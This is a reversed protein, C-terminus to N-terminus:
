SPKDRALPDATRQGACARRAGRNQPFRRQLRDSGGRRGKRRPAYAGVPLALANEATWKAPSSVKAQLWGFKRPGRQPTRDNLIEAKSERNLIPEADHSIPATFVAKGAPDILEAQVTWGKLSRNDYAALKPEIQLTADRYNEDFDTRVAFDQIRVAATSYLWVDRHIGGFRWMDQDELYSGDSFRYVEAAILNKGPKVFTTVDFEAPSMSGQSYGVREGNIWVYFASQVGDFHLFVRRGTWTVPLDFTRRYSGVANREKFTTYDAPPESTVRPPDIKFIYGSSAYVPTGYGNIEWNAPVPFAKWKSDNFSPKYFDAPRQEPATVWNFRWASESSLSLYWPSSEAKGQRAQDVTAFPFSTARAPERNIQLVQENEWDPAALSRAAFAVGLLLVTLARFPIM